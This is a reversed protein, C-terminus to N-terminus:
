DHELPKDPVPPGLILRIPVNPAPNLAYAFTSSVSGHVTRIPGTPSTVVPEIVAKSYFTMIGIGTINPHRPGHEGIWAVAAEQIIPLSELKLTVGGTLLLAPTSDPVQPNPGGLAKRWVDEIARDAEGRTVPRTPGDFLEPAKAEVALRRQGPPGFEFDLTRGGQTSTSFLRVEYVRLRRLFGAMGLVLMDHRYGEASRFHGRVEPFVPDERFQDLTNVVNALALLDPIYGRVNGDAITGIALGAHEILVAMPHRNSLAAGTQLARSDRALVDDLAEPLLSRLRDLLEPVLEPTYDAVPPHDYSWYVAARDRDTPPIRFRGAAGGRKGYRKAM